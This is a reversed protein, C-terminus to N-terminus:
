NLTTIIDARGTPPNTDTNAPYVAAENGAKGRRWPKRHLYRVLLYFHGALPYKRYLRHRSQMDRLVILLLLFFTIAAPIAARGHHLTIIVLMKINVLVLLLLLGRSFAVPKQTPKM